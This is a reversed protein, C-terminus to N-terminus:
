FSPLIVEDGPGVNCLIAAMELAATCSTTLLIKKAEFRNEMLSQCKKTFVGDGSIHGSLVAQAVYYLEKGVIFPRNFPIRIMSRM